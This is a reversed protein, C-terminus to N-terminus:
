LLCFAIGLTKDGPYMDIMPLYHVSSRGPHMQGQCLIHMMGQWNPVPQKFHFSLEWLIDVRMDCHQLGPLKQFKINRLAHTAFRYEIIDVKSTEATSLESVNRRSVLYSTQKEPTLVAIMGM